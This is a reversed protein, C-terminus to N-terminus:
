NCTQRKVGLQEKVKEVSVARIESLEVLTALWQVNHTEAVEVLKLVEEHEENSLTGELNKAVLEDYRNQIKLPLPQYIINILELERESPQPVKKRAIIRHIEDALIRM